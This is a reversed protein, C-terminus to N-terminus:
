KFKTLFGRPDASTFGIGSEMGGELVLVGNCPEL